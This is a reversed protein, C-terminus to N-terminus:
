LNLKCKRFSYIYIQLFFPKQFDREPYVTIRIQINEDIGCVNPRFHYHLCFKADYALQSFDYSQVWLESKFMKTKNLLITYRGYSLIIFYSTSSNENKPILEMIELSSSWLSFPAEFPLKVTGFNWPNKEKVLFLKWDSRRLASHDLEKSIM